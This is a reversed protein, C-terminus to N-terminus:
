SALWNGVVDIQAKDFLAPAHGVGPFEVLSVTPASAMGLATSRLLIDSDAGRLVLTPCTVTEWIPWIAVDDPYGVAFADAIRPDYAPRFGGGEAPAVSIEAFHRWHEDSKLGFSAAYTRYFAEAAEIDAFHPKRGVNSAIRGLASKPLFPGVDNLVLRRILGPRAMMIGMGILGGMSTGIWDVQKFGWLDIAALIQQAYVPPQYLSTDPLLASRGRGAVDIAIIRRHSSLAEGLYDFDRANRTLGHVCIVPPQSGADGRDISALAFGNLDLFQYVPTKPPM